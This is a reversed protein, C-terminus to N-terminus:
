NLYGNLRYWLYTKRVAEPFKIDAKYGLIKKAKTIDYRRNETIFKVRQTTLPAPLGIIRGLDFFRALLFAIPIPLYYNPLNVKETKAITKIIEGMTLCPDDGIIFDEGKAKDELTALFLADILNEVYITHFYNDGKGVPIFRHKQILRFLNSFGPRLDGPGFGITPRIITFPLSYKSAFERLVTEAEAKSRSYADTPHLPSNENVGNKGTSGYIGVTSVHVLRKIMLNKSANLLNRLGGVNIDWYEKESLGHHPLAAALHFIVDAQKIEQNFSGLNRLDGQIIKIKNGGVGLDQNKRTLCIVSWKQSILRKVLNRGIFGSGGTVFARM